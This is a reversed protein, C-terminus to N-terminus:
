AHVGETSIFIAENVADTMGSIVGDLDMGNKITNHNTQEISIEATTFRNIAEQEAIDRLYKLEEGTIDMSDTMAGTNESINEIGGGIGGDELSSSYEDPLPFPSNGSEDQSFPFKDYEDPSPLPNEGFLSAPDFNTIKDEIGEGFSYGKDWAKNYDFGELYRDSVDLEKMFEKGEGFTEDVWGGLSDRWGSITDAFESGFVTDIASAVTELVGLVVDALKLFLRAISGVPDDFVNGFFNAFAAIFNWFFAFLGMGLNILAFLLNGIVALATMFVGCILGTASISTGAFHNIAAIVAYFAAVLAIVLIIIWVLPCAALAANLGNQAATEGATAGTLATTMAAHIMQATAMASHIGESIASVTNVALQWGHYVALAAVVGYIIPSLWSWNDMLLQVGDVLLGFIGLVAGGALLLVSIAADAVSWLGEMGGIQNLIPEAAGALLAFAEGAHTVLGQFAESNAIESLGNLLPRVAMLGTNEMSTRIQEFTKPMSEFKANTEDAASFMANKVLDSTIQGTAAMNELEEQPVGLYDAITQIMNPAQELLSNYEEASMTGAGMMQAMQQMAENTGGQDMGAIQFQKSVQETFAVIERSNGFADGAAAGMNSVADAMGLYSSRSRESSLYVMNQLDQATQLGDNIRDLGAAASTMQDSLNLVEAINEVTVVSSVAGTVTQLLGGPGGTDGAEETNLQGQEDAHDRIQRETDGIIQQLRLYAENAEQVDMDNMAQNLNQQVQIAQALQGRLTELEVNAADTGMNLPNNEIQQIRERVLDIRVAMRNLDRFGDLPFISTDFAQRAITDQMHSLRELMADTSRVEQRFREMGSSNFVEIGGSQWRVPVDVPAPQDILPNPPVPNIRVDVTSTSPLSGSDTLRFNISQAMQYLMNTFDGQIEVAVNISGM